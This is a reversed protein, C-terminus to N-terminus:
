ICTKLSSPGTSCWTGRNGSEERLLAALKQAGTPLETGCQACTLVLRTRVGPLVEGAASQGAPVAPM